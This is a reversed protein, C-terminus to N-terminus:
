IKEIFHDTISQGNIHNAITESIIEALNIEIIFDSDINQKISNTTFIKEIGAKKLKEVASFDKKNSLVAHTIALYISKAGNEKLIKTAASVTGGTDVMDDYIIINKNKVDGLIFMSEAKNPGSRRKDVVALPADFLKAFQRARSVGGHDPSVITLDELELKKVESAILGTARLNDVPIDFFGVIQESHIDFTLIRDAGAQVLMNAVVKASIPQRAFVRRDQRAYGFYPIILNIEGASSRKFADIALLLEMLNDNAPKNTSQIVFVSKGRVSSHSELLIEGDAFQDKKIQGLELDLIQAVEKAIEKSTSLGFIISNEKKLNFM